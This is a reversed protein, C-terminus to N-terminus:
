AFESATGRCPGIASTWAPHSAPMAIFVTDRSACTAGSRRAAESGDIGLLALVHLRRCVGHRALAEDRSASGAPRCRRREASRDRGAEGGAHQGRQPQRAQQGPRQGHRDQEGPRRQVHRCRAPAPQARERDAGAPQRQDGAHHQCPLQRGVPFLAHDVDAALHHFQRLGFGAAGTKQEAHVGIRRLRRRQAPAQQLQRPVVVEARVLGPRTACQAGARAPLQLHAQTCRAAQAIGAAEVGLGVRQRLPDAGAAVHHRRLRCRLQRRPLADVGPPRAHGRADGRGHRLGRRAVHLRQRQAIGPPQVIAVPADQAGGAQGMEDGNGAEMDAQDGTGERQEAAAQPPQPRLQAAVPRPALGRRRQRQEAGAAVGQHRAHGQRGHAGRQHDRHHHRCPQPPPRHPHDVCQRQRRDGHQEAVRQCHERGAEPQAEEADGPQGPAHGIGTTAPALRQATEQGRLAHGRDAQQRHARHQEPLGGHDPRQGVQQRDRPPAQHHHRQGQEAGRQLRQM